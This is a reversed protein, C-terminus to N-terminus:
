YAVIASNDAAEQSVITCHYIFWNLLTGFNKFLKSFNLFNKFNSFYGDLPYKEAVKGDVLEFFNENWTLVIMFHEGIV